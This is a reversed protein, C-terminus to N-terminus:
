AHVCAMWTLGKIRISSDCSNALGTPLPMRISGIRNGVHVNVCTVLYLVNYISSVPWVTMGPWVVGVFWPYNTNGPNKMFVSMEAGQDYAAYNKGPQFAVAPDVMLVLCTFPSILMRLRSSSYIRSYSPQESYHQQRAHLDSLPRLQSFM